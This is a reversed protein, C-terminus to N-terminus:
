TGGLKMAKSITKTIIWIDFRLSARKIYELDYPLRGAAHANDFSYSYRIQALGTIGPKAALRRPFKKSIQTLEVALESFEPRPGVVSMQGLLVNWFQPLEDVYTRRLIRGVSSIRPDNQETRLNQRAHNDGNVMTRFKAMNFPRGNLGLRDRRYFIPLGSTLVTVLAVFPFLGIVASIGILSFLIDVVRKRRSILYSNVNVVEVPLSEVQNGIAAASPFDPKTKDM